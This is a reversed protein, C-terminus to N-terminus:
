VGVIECLVYNNNNYVIGNATGSVVNTANGGVTTDNIYLYKTCCANFGNGWITFTHGRGGHKEVFDKSVFFENYHYDRSSGSTTNYAVFRFVVGHPQASIPETLTATHGEDMVALGSWLTTTGSQRYWRGYVWNANADTNILRKYTPKDATLPIYEQTVYKYSTNSIVIGAPSYVILRGALKIPVNSVTSAIANGGIAYAGPTKYDNLNANSPIQPLKYLGYVNGQVYDANVQFVDKGWEFVPKSVVEIETTTINNFADTIRGKFKYTNQYNLGTLNVSADYTNNSTNFGVSAEIWSSYTGGNVSYCYYVQVNNATAGINGKYCMGNLKLTTTGSTTVNSGSVNITPKVYNVFTKSFTQSKTNGRSDTVEVTFTGSDVASITGGDTTISKSGNTIKISKLTAHKKLSVGSTVKANSLSKVLINKDKTINVTATNTDEVVPNLTPAANIISLTVEKSSYYYTGNITTRVYFIVKRSNSTTTANRLANREADTLNFTYSTGTKPIDRYAILVANGDSSICAQLASVSNGALNSYTITPNAEDNFNPASTLTAQRPIQTLEWSGSGTSNIASSYIAAEASATFTKKGDANHSITAEGTAVVTGNKLQIRTSSEYVTVDNIVVKFPAAYYYNTTSSGGAGKLEWTIVSYNNATSQTKLTWSFTVCRKYDGYATTNFSGQTAM